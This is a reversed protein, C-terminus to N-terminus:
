RKATQLKIEFIALTLNEVRKLRFIAVEQYPGACLIPPM